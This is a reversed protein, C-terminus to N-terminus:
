TAGGLDDPRDFCREVTQVAEIGRAALARGSSGRGDGADHQGGDEAPHDGGECHARGSPAAAKVGGWKRGAHSVGEEV